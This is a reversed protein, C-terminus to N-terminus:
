GGDDFRRRCDTVVPDLRILSRRSELFPLRYRYLRMLFRRDDLTIFGRDDVFAHDLDNGAQPGKMALLYGGSGLFSITRSIFDELSSFARCIVVDFRRNYAPLRGLDELRGHVADIDDLDLTRIVYKLFAVKKRVSDVLTVRIDPRVIKLPIGPFGAGAGADLVRAARDIWPVAATADVYHKVAMELPETIATLNTVRNWQLLEQAHRGLANAQDQAVSVGLLRSGEIVTRRWEDSDIKV